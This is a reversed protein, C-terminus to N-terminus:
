FLPTLKVGLAGKKEKRVTNVPIQIQLDNKRNSKQSFLYLIDQM